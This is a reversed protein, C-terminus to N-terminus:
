RQNSRVEQDFPATVTGNVWPNELGGMGGNTMGYDWFGTWNRNENILPDPFHFYEEDDM